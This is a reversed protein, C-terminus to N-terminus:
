TELKPAGKLFRFDFIQFRMVSRSKSSGQTRKASPRSDWANRRSNRGVWRNGPAGHQARKQPGAHSDTSTISVPMPAARVLRASFQSSLAGFSPIMGYRGLTTM